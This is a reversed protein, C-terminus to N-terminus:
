ASPREWVPIPRGAVGLTYTRVRLGLERKLRCVAISTLRRRTGLDPFVDHANLWTRANDATFQGTQDLTTTLHTMLDTVTERESPFTLPLQAWRASQDRFKPM